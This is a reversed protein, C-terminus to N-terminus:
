GGSVREKAWRAFTDSQCCGVVGASDTYYIWIDKWRTVTRDKGMKGRYVGGVEIEDVRM